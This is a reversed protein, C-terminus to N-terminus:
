YRAKVFRDVAGGFDTDAGEVVLPMDKFHICITQERDADLVFHVVEFAFEEDIVEGLEFALADALFQYFLLLVLRNRQSSMAHMTVPSNIEIACAIFKKALVARM